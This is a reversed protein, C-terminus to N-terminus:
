YKRRLPNYGFFAPHSLAQMIEECLPQLDMRTKALARLVYVGERVHTVSLVYPRETMKFHLDSREPMQWELLKEALQTFRVDTPSGVLYTSLMTHYQDFNAPSTAIHAEPTFGFRDVLVM